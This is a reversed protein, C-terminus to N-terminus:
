TIGVGSIYWTNTAVKICSAQANAALTRNGTSGTGAEILTVGAQTQVTTSGSAIILIATGTAFAVNANSPITIIGSGYYHKGGADAVLTTFSTIQPLDRYGIQYDATTVTATNGTVNLSATSTLASTTLNGGTINGTVSVTTGTHTTANVNAGGLVNGGTINGTAVVSVASVATTGIVNGGTINGTTAIASVVNGSLSLGAANLNGSTINGTVSVTTGTHTTANVNAGGLVNGGTINGTVSVTTGTFLTANVNAGGLVNGGTINGTVSVTAGELAGVLLTGYSSVTVVENTIGVEQAAILKGLSQDYGIFASKEATSYYFLQQGRDFGDNSSLATNNAGRGVGIIPDKIAVNTTNIYTNDGGVALNGALVTDGAASVTGGTAINGGTITGTATLANTSKDFTLNATANATGSDNLV